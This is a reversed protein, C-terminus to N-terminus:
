VARIRERHVNKHIRRDLCRAPVLDVQRHLLDELYHKVESVKFLGFPREVDILLDIDSDPGAEDRAVSGFLYVPTVNMARLEDAHEGITALVQKRDIVPQTAPENM